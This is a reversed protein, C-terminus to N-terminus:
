TSNIKGGHIYVKSNSQVTAFKIRPEIPNIITLKELNNTKFIYADQQILDTTLHM